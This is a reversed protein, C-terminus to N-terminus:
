CHLLLFHIQNLLWVPLFVLIGRNPYNGALDGIFSKQNSSLSLGEDYRM